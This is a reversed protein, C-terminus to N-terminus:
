NILINRSIGEIKATTRGPLPQIQDQGSIGPMSFAIINSLVANLSLVIFVRVLSLSFILSIMLM